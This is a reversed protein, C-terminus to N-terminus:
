YACLPDRVTIIVYDGIREPDIGTLAPRGDILLGRRPVNAAYEYRRYLKDVADSM